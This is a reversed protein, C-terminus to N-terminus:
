KIPLVATSRRHATRSEACDDSATGPRATCSQPTRDHRHATTASSANHVPTKPGGCRANALQLRGTRSRDRGGQVEAQCNRRPSSSRVAAKRDSAPIRTGFTRRPGTASGGDHDGPTPQRCVSQQSLPQSEVARVPHRARAPDPERRHGSRRDHHHCGLSGAYRTIAQSLDLGLVPGTQGRRGAERPVAKAPMEYIASSARIQLACTM